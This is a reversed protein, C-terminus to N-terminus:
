GREWAVDFSDPDLGCLEEPAFIWVAVDGENDNKM